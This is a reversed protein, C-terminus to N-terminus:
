FLFQIRKPEMKKKATYSILINTEKKPLPEPLMATLVLLLLFLQPRLLLLPMRLLSNEHQQLLLLLVSSASSHVVFPVLPAGAVLPALPTQRGSSTDAYGRGGWAVGGRRGGWCSLSTWLFHM